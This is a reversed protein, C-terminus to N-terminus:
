AGLRPFGQGEGRRWAVALEDRGAPLQGPRHRGAAAHASARGRAGRSRDGAAPRRARGTARAGIGTRGAPGRGCPRRWPGRADGRAGGLVVARSSTGARGEGARGGASRGRVAGPFGASDACAPKSAARDAFVARAGARESVADSCVAARQSVLFAASAAACPSGATEPRTAAHSAPSVRGCARTRGAAARWTQAIEARAAARPRRKAAQRPPTAPPRFPEIRRRRADSPRSRQACAGSRRSPRPRACAWWRGSRAWSSPSPRPRLSRELRSTRLARVRRARARRARAASPRRAAGQRGPQARAARVGLWAFSRVGRVGAPWRACAVRRAGWASRVRAAHRGM